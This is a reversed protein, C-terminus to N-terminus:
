QKILDCGVKLFWILVTPIINKMPRKHKQGDESSLCQCSKHHDIKWPHKYLLCSLPYLHRKWLLSYNQRGGKLTSIRDKESAFAPLIIFILDGKMAFCAHKTGMIFSDPEKLVPNKEQLTVWQTHLQWWGIPISVQPSFNQVQPSFNQYM